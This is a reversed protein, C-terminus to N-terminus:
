LNFVSFFNSAGGCWGQVVLKVFFITSIIYFTGCCIIVQLKTKQKEANFKINPKEKCSPVDAQAEQEVESDTNNSEEGDSASVDSDYGANDLRGQSQSSTTLNAESQQEHHERSPLNVLDNQLHLALIEYDENADGSDKRKLSMENCRSM